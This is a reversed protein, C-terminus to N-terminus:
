FSPLSVGTHLVAFSVCIYLVTKQVIPLPSPPVIQPFSVSVHIIDYLFHIALGPEICSAQPQHVPIVRLSPVPLSTSPPNLIPFVCVGMASEHQHTTSGISYQLTFIIIIIIFVILFIIGVKFLIHFLIYIYIHIVKSYVLFYCLM